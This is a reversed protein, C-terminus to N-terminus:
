EVTITGKMGAEYHGPIDCDFEVQGPQDFAWTLDKIEHAGASVTNAEHHHAPTGAMGAMHQRHAQQFAQDGLTFEHATGSTNTIVFRIIDGTKVQLRPPRFKFDEMTIAVTKTASAAAAPHGFRFGAGPRPPVGMDIDLAMAAGSGAGLAAFLTAMMAGRMMAGREFSPVSVAAAHLRM